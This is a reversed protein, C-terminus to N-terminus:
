ASPSSKRRGRRSRREPTALGVLWGKDSKRVVIDRGADQAAKMLRQRVTLAKENPEVQVEFVTNPDDIKTIMRTFQRQQALREQAKPSLQRTKTASPKPKDLLAVDVQRIKAMDMEMQYAWLCQQSLFNVTFDDSNAIM